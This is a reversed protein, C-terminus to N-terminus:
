NSLFKYRYFFIGGSKLYKMVTSASIGLSIAAKRASDFSGLLEFNSNTSLEYVKVPKGRLKSIKKEKTETSAKRNITKARMLEITRKKTLKVM